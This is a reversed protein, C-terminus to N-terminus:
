YNRGVVRSVMKDVEKMNSEYLCDDCKKVRRYTPDTYRLRCNVCLKGGLEKKKMGRSFIYGAMIDSIVNDCHIEKM